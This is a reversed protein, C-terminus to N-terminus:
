ALEGCRWRRFVERKLEDATLQYGEENAIAAIEAPGGLAVMLKAQLSSNTVVEKLFSNLDKDSTSRIQETVSPQREALNEWWRGRVMLEEVLIEFGADRAIEAIASAEAHSAEKLKQLISPSAQIVQLFEFLKVQNMM